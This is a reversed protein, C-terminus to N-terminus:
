YVLAKSLVIKIFADSVLAYSYLNRPYRYKISRTQFKFLCIQSKKKKLDMIPKPHTRTNGQRTEDWGM